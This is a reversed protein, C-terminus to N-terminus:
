ALLFVSTLNTAISDNWDEDCMKEIYAFRRVAANMVCVDLGGLKSLGESCAEKLRSPNAIDCAIEGLWVDGSVTRNLSVVQYGSDSFLKAIARGTGRNSGTILLRGNM